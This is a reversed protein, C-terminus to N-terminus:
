HMAPNVQSNGGSCINATSGRSVEGGAGAIHRYGTVELERLDLAVLVSSYYKLSQKFVVKNPIHDIQAYICVRVVLNQCLTGRCLM